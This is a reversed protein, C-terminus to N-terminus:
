VQSRRGCPPQMNPRTQKWTPQLGLINWYTPEEKNAQEPDVKHGKKNRVKIMNEVCELYIDHLISIIWYM